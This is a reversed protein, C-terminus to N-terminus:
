NLVGKSRVLITVAGYDERDIYLSTMPVGTVFLHYLVILGVCFALVSQVYLSNSLYSRPGLGTYISQRQM